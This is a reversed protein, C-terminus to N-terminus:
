LARNKVDLVNGMFSFTKGRKGDHCADTIDPRVCDTGSRLLRFLTQNQMLRLVFFPVIPPLNM